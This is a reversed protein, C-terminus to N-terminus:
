PNKHTLYYNMQTISENLLDLSANNPKELYAKIASISSEFEATISFPGEMAFGNNGMMSELTGQNQELFNEMQPILKQLAAANAPPGMDARLQAEYQEMQDIIADDQSSRTSPQPAYSGGGASVGTVM